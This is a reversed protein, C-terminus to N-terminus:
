ISLGEILNKSHIHLNHILVWKNNNTDLLYPKKLGDNKDIKWKYKITNDEEKIYLYDLAKKHVLDRGILKIGHAAGDFIYSEKEDYNKYCDNNIDNRNFFVPLLYIDKYKKEYDYIGRMETIDNTNNEDMYEMLFNTIKDLNDKSYMYGICHHKNFAALATYNYNLNRFYELLREPNSYILNDIELIINDKLNLLKILNNIIFIREYSRIFLLERGKLHEAYPCIFKYKNIEMKDLFNDDKVDVYNIIKVKFINSLIKIKENNIDDIILYIDGRYYLRTQYISEIIYDPLKGIFSYILNM